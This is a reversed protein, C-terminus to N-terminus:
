KKLRAKAKQLTQRALNASSFSALSSVDSSSSVDLFNADSGAEALNSGVETSKANSEGSVTKLLGLKPVAIERKYRPINSSSFITDTSNCNSRGVATDSNQDEKPPSAIPNGTEPDFDSTTFDVQKDGHQSAQAIVSLGDTTDADCEEGGQEFGSLEQLQDDAAQSVSRHFRAQKVNVLPIDLPYIKSTDDADEKFEKIQGKLKNLADRNSNQMVRKQEQRLSNMQRILEDVKDYDYQERSKHALQRDKKLVAVWDLQGQQGNSSTKSKRRYNKKLHYEHTLKDYDYESPRRFKLHYESEYPGRQLPLRKAKSVPRQTKLVYQKTESAFYYDSPDKFTKHYESEIPVTNGMKDCLLAKLDHYCKGLNKESVPMDESGSESRDHKRKQRNVYDQGLNKKLISSDLNSENENTPHGVAKPLKPVEVVMEEQEMHDEKKDKKTELGAPRDQSIKSRWVFQRDYESVAPEKFPMERPKTTESPSKKDNNTKMRKKPSKDTFKEQYETKIKEFSFYDSKEIPVLPTAEEVVVRPIETVNRIAKSKKPSKDTFSSQYESVNKEVRANSSRKFPVEERTIMPVRKQYTLPKAIYQRNYESVENSKQSGAAKLSKGDAIKKPIQEKKSDQKPKSVRKEISREGIKARPALLPPPPPSPPPPVDGNNKSHDIDRPINKVPLLPVDSPRAKTKTAKPISEGKNEEESKLNEKEKPAKTEEPINEKQTELPGINPQPYPKKWTFESAYESTRVLMKSM